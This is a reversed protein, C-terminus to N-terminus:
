QKYAEDHHTFDLFIVRREKEDIGYILVFHGIQVRRKGKLQGHLPKGLYPKETIQVLKKQVATYLTKDRKALRRLKSILEEDIDQSYSNM